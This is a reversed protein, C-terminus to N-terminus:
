QRVFHIKKSTPGIVRDAGTPVYKNINQQSSTGQKRIVLYNDSTVAITSIGTVSCWPIRV